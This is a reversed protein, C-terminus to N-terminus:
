TASSLHFRGVTLKKGHGRGCLSVAVTTVNNVSNRVDNHDIILIAGNENTEPIEESPFHAVKDM